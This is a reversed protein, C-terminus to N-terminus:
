EVLGHKTGWVAIQTRTKVKTKQFISAIHDKVTEHSIQLTDGIEKNSLGNAIHHLVQIERKTLPLAAIPKTKNAEYFVGLASNPIPSDASTTAKRAQLLLQPPSSKLIYDFITCCPSSAAPNQKM